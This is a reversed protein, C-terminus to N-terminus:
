LGLNDPRTSSELNIKQQQEVLDETRFVQDGLRWIHIWDKSRTRPSSGLVGDNRKGSQTKGSRWSACWAKPNETFSTENVWICLLRGKASKRDWKYHWDGMNAKKKKIRNGKMRIQKKHHKNLRRTRQIALLPGPETGWFHHTGGSLSTPKFLEQAATLSLTPAWMGNKSLASFHCWQIVKSM